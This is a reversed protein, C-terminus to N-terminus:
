EAEGFTKLLPQGAADFNLLQEVRQEAADLQNQTKRSLRVGEEFLALSEELPLDGSELQDVVKALRRISEEFSLPSSNGDLPETQKDTNAKTKKTAM